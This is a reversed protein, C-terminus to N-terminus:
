GLATGPLVDAHDGVDAGPAAEVQDLRERAARAETMEGGITLAGTDGPAARDVHDTLM